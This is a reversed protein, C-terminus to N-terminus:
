ANLPLIYVDIASGGSNFIRIHTNETGMSWVSIVGNPVLFNGASAAAMGTVGFAIHYAGTASIAVVRRKGINLEVSSAAAGLATVKQHDKAASFIADLKAM